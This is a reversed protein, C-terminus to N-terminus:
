VNKRRAQVGDIAYLSQRRIASIVVFKFEGFFWNLTAFHNSTPALKCRFRFHRLLLFTIQFHEPYGTTKAEPKEQRMGQESNQARAELHRNWHWSTNREGNHCQKRKQNEQVSWRAADEEQHNRLKEKFSSSLKEDSVSVKQGPTSRCVVHHLIEISHCVSDNAALHSFKQLTEFNFQSSRKCCWAIIAIWSILCFTSFGKWAASFATWCKM